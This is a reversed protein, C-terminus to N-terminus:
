KPVFISDNSKVRVAELGTKLTDVVLISNKRKTQTTDVCTRRFNNICTSFTDASISVIANGKGAKLGM